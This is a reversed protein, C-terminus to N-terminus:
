SSLTKDPDYPNKRNILFDRIKILKKMSREPLNNKEQIEAVIIEPEKVAELPEAVITEPEKVIELPEEIKPIIVEKPLEEAKTIIEKKPIKTLLYTGSLILTLALPDILFVISIVVVTFIKENTINFLKSVSNLFVFRDQQISSKTIVSIKEEIIKLEAEKQKKEKAFANMLRIRNYASTKEPMNAVQAESSTIFKRLREADEKLQQVEASGLNTEAMTKSISANFHSYTSIASLIILSFISAGLLAKFFMPFNKDKYEHFMFTSATIKAVEFAISLIVLGVFIEPDPILMTFGKVSFYAGALTITLGSLIM